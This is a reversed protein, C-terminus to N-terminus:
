PCSLATSTLTGTNSVQIRFCSGNPSKMIVGRTNDKIFIDGSAVELEKSGPPPPLTLALQGRIEGAAFSSSHLNIYVNGAILDTEDAELVSFTGSVTGSTNGTTPALDIIVGGNAGAAAKHLHSATLTGALNFYSASITIQNTTADYTGTLTGSGESEVAPVENGGNITANISYSQSM